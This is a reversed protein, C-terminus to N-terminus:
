DRDKLQRILENKFEKESQYLQTVKEAPLVKKFEDRYRKRLDLVRQEHKFQEDTRQEATLNEKSKDRWQRNLEVLEGQYQNYVPWFHESEEPTLDLSRSIYGVKIAEIRQVRDDSMPRREFPASNFSRPALSSRNKPTFGQAYSVASFLCAALFVFLVSLKM